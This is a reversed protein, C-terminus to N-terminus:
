ELGKGFYKKFIEQTVEDVEDLFQTYNSILAKGQATVTAGGGGVGGAWREVVSYGIEKELGKLMKRGKSYSMNMMSCAQQISGTQDIYELLTCVGPGFFSENGKLVVKIKPYIPHGCGRAYHWNILDHYEEKTDVDRYVGADDVEMETLPFSSNEMAGRLGGDGNYKCIELAIDSRIIIPHGPNKNCVTRIMPADINMENKITEPLIAPVDIPMIMVRDCLDAIERIGITVSTFMDTTEYNENRVFLLKEDKLHEELEKAKYGTVVVIPSVGLYKLLRVIHLAITSNGFPLLPKFDVMRSSKGAAVLVGGFRDM